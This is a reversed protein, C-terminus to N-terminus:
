SHAASAFSRKQPLSGGPPMHVSRFFDLECRGGIAQSFPIPSMPNTVDDVAPQQFVSEYDRQPRDFGACPHVHRQEVGSVRVLEIEELGKEAAREVEM